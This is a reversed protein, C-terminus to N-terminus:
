RGEKKAQTEKVEKIPVQGRIHATTAQVSLMNKTVRDILELTDKKGMEYADSSFAGEIGRVVVGPSGDLVLLLDDKKTLKINKSVTYIQEQIQAAINGVRIFPVGDGERNYSASGPETGREFDCYKLIPIYDWKKNKLQLRSKQMKIKSNLSVSTEGLKKTPWTSM